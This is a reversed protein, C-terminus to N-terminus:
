PDLKNKEIKYNHTLDIIEENKLSKFATLKTDGHKDPELNLTLKSINNLFGGKDDVIFNGWLGEKLQKHNLESLEPNGYFIRLQNLKTGPSVLIDFTIPTVEIYLSGPNEESVRDYAPSSDEILRVLVDLRGISSKGTAYGYFKRIYNDLYRLNEKLKFVYTKGRELQIKSSESLDDKHLEFYNKDKLIKYYPEKQGLGKICGKMIWYEHGIHLDFSSEPSEDMTSDQIVGEEELFLLQQKNLVGPRFDELKM